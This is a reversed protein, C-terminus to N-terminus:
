KRLQKWYSYGYVLVTSDSAAIAALQLAIRLLAFVAAGAIIAVLSGPGAAISAMIGVRFGVELIGGVVMFPIMVVMGALVAIVDYIFVGVINSKVIDISSHFADMVPKKGAAIELTWFQTLFTFAIFFIALWLIYLMLAISFLAMQELMILALVIAGPIILAALIIVLQILMFSLAPMKMEGALQMIPSRTNGMKQEDMIMFVVLEFITKVWGMVLFGIAFLAGIVVLLLTNSLLDNINFTPSFMDTGSAVLAGWGLLMLIIFLGIGIVTSLLQVKLMKSFLERFNKKIFEFSPKLLDVAMDMSDKGKGAKAPAKVTRKAKAAKQPAAM